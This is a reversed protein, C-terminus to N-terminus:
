AASSSGKLDRVAAHGAEAAHRIADRAAHTDNRGPDLAGATFNQPTLHIVEEYVAGAHQAATDIAARMTALDAEAQTTDKGDSKAKDIASQIRDAANRLKAVAALERDSVIVLRARPRVLVFVRYDDVIQRCEARLEEGNDEGQITNALASLGASTTEDIRKLAARHEDTLNNRNDLRNDLEVLAHQRNDIAALCRTKVRDIRADREATRDRTQALAAVPTLALTVALAAATLVSTRLKM